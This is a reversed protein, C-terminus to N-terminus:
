IKRRRLLPAACLMGLFGFGAGTALSKGALPAPAYGQSFTTRYQKGDAVHHLSLAFRTLPPRDHRAHGPKNTTGEPAPRTLPTAAPLTIFVMGNADSLLAEAAGEERHFLLIVNALPRNRFRLLFPWEEGARYARFERPLPTPIIELEAKPQQLMARPAPAPNSFYHVTSAVTIQNGTEQRAQIWHFGGEGPRPTVAIGAPTAQELPWHSTNSEPGTYRPTFVTVSPTAMQQTKFLPQMRSGGALLLLPLDAWSPNVEAQSTQPCLLLSAMLLM